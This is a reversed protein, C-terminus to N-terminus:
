HRSLIQESQIEKNSRETASKAKERYSKVYDLGIGVLFGLLASGFIEWHRGGSKLSELTTLIKQLQIDNLSIVDTM